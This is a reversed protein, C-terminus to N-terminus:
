PRAHSAKEMGALQQRLETPLADSKYDSPRPNLERRWSWRKLSKSGDEQLPVREFGACNLDSELAIAAAQMSEPIAKQYHRLSIGPDAHRLHTQTAKPDRAKDGFLTGSTRRLSQFNVGAVRAREAIPKLVRSLYNHHDIPAGRRSAPFIWQDSDGSTLGLWAGLERALDPPVYVFADSARSKTPAPKGAVIAEDVRLLQGQVDDRRLAFTEEPRLGLQIFIRLIIRDRGTVVSLLRQCEELSLFRECPQKRSKARLKRAPNRDIIRKDVALELIARLYLVMKQLQSRSAEASVYENIFAQLETATLDSVRKSGITQILHKEILHKSSRATHPGWNPESLSIYERAMQEFTAASDPRLYRGISEAILLDLTRQADAKTLPGNYDLGIRYKEALERTIVKERSRRREDGGSEAYVFWRAWFRGPSLRKLEGRGRGRQRPMSRGINKLDSAIIACNM